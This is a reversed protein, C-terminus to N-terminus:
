RAVQCPEITVTRLRTSSIRKESARGNRYGTSCL